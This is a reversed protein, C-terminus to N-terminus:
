DQGPLVRRNECPQSRHKRTSYGGMFFLLDRSTLCPQGFNPNCPQCPNFPPRCPNFPPNCPNYPPRCPIFPPSCPHECPNYCPDLNPFCSCNPLHNFQPCSFKPCPTFSTFPRLNTYPKNIYGCEYDNNCNM